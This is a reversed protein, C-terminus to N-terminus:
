WRFPNYERGMRLRVPIYSSERVSDNFWRLFETANIDNLAANM